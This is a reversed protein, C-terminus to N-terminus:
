RKKKRVEAEFIANKKEEIEFWKDEWDTLFGCGQVTRWGKRYSRCKYVYKCKFKCYYPVKRVFLRWKKGGFVFRVIDVLLRYLEIIFDVPFLYYRM